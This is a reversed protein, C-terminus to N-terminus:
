VIKQLDPNANRIKPGQLSPEDTFAYQFLFAGLAGVQWYPIPLRQDKV